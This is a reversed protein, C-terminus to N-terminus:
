FPFDDQKYKQSEQKIYDWGDSNKNNCKSIPFFGTWGREISQRVINLKMEEAENVPVEKVLEDLKKLSLEIARNTLTAKKAKRTALHNKLESRLEDNTTYNGILDDFTEKREKKSINKKENKDNKINKNTTLQKNATQQNNTLENNDQKNDQQNDEVPKDQFFAYKEITIVTGKRTSQKTIENTSILHRLSTRVEQVTLGTQEALEKLSIAIQGKKIIDGKSRKEKHNAKLLLHIFVRSTNIDSYWEWELFQRYLKIWGEMGEVGTM